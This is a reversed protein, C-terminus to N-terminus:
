DGILEGLGCEISEESGPAPSGPPHCSPARPIGHHSGNRRDIRRFLLHTLWQGLRAASPKATLDPLGAGELM